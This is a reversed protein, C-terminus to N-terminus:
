MSPDPLSWTEQKGRLVQVETRGELELVEPVLVVPERVGQTPVEATQPAEM